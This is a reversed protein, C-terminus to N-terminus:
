RRLAEIDDVSKPIFGTLNIPENGNVVVDDEIRIGIGRFEEPVTENDPAIYIGPEVTCVMGDQLPRPEGDKWYAGVDHVDGGLWHGTGHMYFKKYDAVGDDAEKKDDAPAERREWKRALERDEAEKKDHKAIIEDIDGRMLDLDLLGQVLVRTTERHVADMSSGAVTAAIAIEQARLM